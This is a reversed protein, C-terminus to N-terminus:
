MLSKKNFCSQKSSNTAVKKKWFEVKWCKMNNNKHLCSFLSRSWFHQALFSWNELKYLSFFLIDLSVMPASLTWSWGLFMWLSFYFLGFLSHGKVGFDASLVFVCYDLSFAFFCASVSVYVCAPLHHVCTLCMLPDHCVPLFNLCSVPPLRHWFLVPFLAFKLGFRSLFTSQLSSLQVQPPLLYWVYDLSPHLLSFFLLPFVPKNTWSLFDWVSHFLPM